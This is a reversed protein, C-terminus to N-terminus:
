AQCSLTNASCNLSYYDRGVFAWVETGVVAFGSAVYNVPNIDVTPIITTRAPRIIGEVTTDIMTADALQNPHERHYIGGIGARWDQQYWYQAVEPPFESQTFEGETGVRPGITQADIMGYSRRGNQRALMFGRQNAGDVDEIVVDHTVGATVM